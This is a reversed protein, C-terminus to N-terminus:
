FPEGAVDCTYLIPALSGGSTLTCASGTRGSGAEILAKAEACSDASRLSTLLTARTNSSASFTFAVTSSGGQTASAGGTTGSLCTCSVSGSGTQSCSGADGPVPTTGGSSAAGSQPLNCVLILTATSDSGTSSGPFSGTFSPLTVAQATCFPLLLALSPLLGHPRLPIAQPM